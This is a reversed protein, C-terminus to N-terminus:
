QMGPIKLASVDNVAEVPLDDIDFTSNNPISQSACYQTLALKGNFLTCIFSSLHM